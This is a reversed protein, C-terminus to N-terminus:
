DMTKKFHQGKIPSLQYVVFVIILISYICIITVSFLFLCIAIYGLYPNSRIIVLNTSLSDLWLTSVIITSGCLLILSFFALNALHLARNADISILIDELGERHEVHEFLGKFTLNKRYELLRPLALIYIGVYIGLMAGMTQVIASPLWCPDM